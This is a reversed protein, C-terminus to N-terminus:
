PSTFQTPAVVGPKLDMSGLPYMIARSDGRAGAELAHTPRALVQENLDSFKNLKVVSLGASLAAEVGLRGDEVARAKEPTVGLRRLAEHYIEPDPKPRLVEDGGVIVGFFELLGALELMQTASSRVANSVAALLIGRSSLVSLLRQRAIEPKSRKRMIRSFHERKSQLVQKEFKASLTGRGILWQIKSATPLGLLERSHVGYPIAACFPVLARNLAEFHWDTADILVGDVDFIVATQEM